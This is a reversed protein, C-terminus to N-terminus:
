HPQTNRVPPHATSGSGNLQGLASTSTSSAPPPPPAAPVSSSPEMLRRTQPAPLVEACHNAQHEKPVQPAACTLICTPTHM